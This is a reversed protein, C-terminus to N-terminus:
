RRLKFRAIVARFTTTTIHKKLYNMDTETIEDDWQRSYQGIDEPLKEPHNILKEITFCNLCYKRYGTVDQFITNFTRYTM